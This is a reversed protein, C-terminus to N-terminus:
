AVWTMTTLPSPSLIGAQERDVPFCHLKEEDELPIQKLEEALKLSQRPNLECLFVSEQIPRGYGKLQRHLQRRKKPQSIDYVIVVTRPPAFFPM